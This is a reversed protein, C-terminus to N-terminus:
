VRFGVGCKLFFVLGRLGLVRFKGTPNVPLSVFCSQADLSRLTAAVQQAPCRGIVDLNPNKASPTKVQVLDKSYDGGFYKLEEAEPEM